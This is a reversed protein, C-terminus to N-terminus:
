PSVEIFEIRNGFCDDTFFRKVGEIDTDVRVPYGATSLKQKLDDAGSVTLAVHAKKAPRFEAEVGVHLKVSDAEFWAGGKKALGPPKPLERMGLIGVYFTRAKDEEGAPMALQVHDIAGITTM